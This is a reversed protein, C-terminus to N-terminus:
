LMAAFARFLAEGDDADPRRNAFAIREPHFQVSFVRGNEHILGEVYGEESRCTVSLGDGLRDVLEVLDDSSAAFKPMTRIFM